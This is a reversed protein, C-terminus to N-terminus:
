GRGFYILVIMILGVILMALAIYIWKIYPAENCVKREFDCGYDCLFDQHKTLTQNVCGPCSPETFEWTVKRYERMWTENLCVRETVETSFYSIMFNKVKCYLEDLAGTMNITANIQIQTINTIYQSIDALDDQILYLKYFISSNVLLLTENVSSIEDQIAYLKSILSNNMQKSFNLVDDINQKIGYLEGLISANVAILRNEIDYIKNAWSAIHFTSASYAKIGGKECYVSTEYVGEVAPATFTHYYVGYSNPLHVMGTKNVWLTKNPYWISVNCIGDDIPNPTGATTKLFQFSVHSQEGSNYETAGAYRLDYFSSLANGCFSVNGVNEIFGISLNQTLFMYRDYLERRYFRLETLYSTYDGANLIEQSTNYYLYFWYFDDHMQHCFNTMTDNSVPTGDLIPNEYTFNSKNAYEQCMQFTNTYIADAVQKSYDLEWKMYNDYKLWYNYENGSQINIPITIMCNELNTQSETTYDEVYEWDTGNYLKIWEIATCDVGFPTTYTWSTNRSSIGIITVNEEIDGEPYQFEDDNTFYACTSGTKTSGCSTMLKFFIPTGGSVHVEGSGKLDTIIGAIRAGKLNLWNDYLNFSSGGYTYTRIRVTSNTPNITGNISISNSLYEDVGIPVSGATGHFTLTNPLPIWSSNTWNWVYMIMTPMSSAEGLYMVSLETLNEDVIWEYYADCSKTAGGSSSCQQYIWDEYDNLVFTSEPIYTGSLVTRKPSNPSYPPYYFINYVSYYCKAQAMYLGSISPTIFEYYYIGTGNIHHRMVGNNIWAPHTQNEVSPYWVSIYCNADDVTAGSSDKVELFLTADENEVYETGFFSVEGRPNNMYTLDLWMTSSGTNQGVPKFKVSYNGSQNIINSCDFNVRALGAGAYTTSIYYFPNNCSENNVWLTFNVSPSIWIDASIIASIVSKINDPPFVSITYTYNVGNSM